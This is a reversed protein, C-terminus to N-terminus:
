KCLYMSNNSLLLLLITSVCISHNPKIMPMIFAKFYKNMVHLRRTKDFKLIRTDFLTQSSEELEFLHSLFFHLSYIIAENERNVERRNVYTNVYTCIVIITLTKHM